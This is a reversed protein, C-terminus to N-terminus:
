PVIDRVPYSLRYGATAEDMLHRYGEEWRRRRDGTHLRALLRFTKPSYPHLELARFACRRAAEPDGLRALVDALVLWDKYRTKTHVGATALSARGREAARQLLAAREPGGRELAELYLRTMVASAHEQRLLTVALVGALLAALVAAGAAARWVPRPLRLGSPAAPTRAAALAALAFFALRHFPLELVYDTAMAATWCVLQGFLLLDGPRRSGRYARAMGLLLVALFSAWVALGIWGSEGLVQVHDSHARRVEVADDFARYRDHLRYVPYQTQWDGLGVGWPRHEVMNLTNLFYVGRDSEFYSAPDVLYSALSAAKQRAAPAALLVAGTLAAALGLAAALRRAPLGRPPWRLALLVVAVAGAAVAALSTRSQLTALYALEGVACAALLLRLPGAATAIWGCLLFLQGAIALAMPNKYGMISANAVEGYPDISTLWPLDVVLQLGGAATALAAVAILSGEVTSRVRHDRRAWATVVVALLFLPLYLTLEFFANEPVAAWAASIAFIGLVAGLLAIPPARLTAPLDLEDLRRRWAVLFFAVFCWTLVLVAARKPTGYSVFLLQGGGSGPLFASGSIVLTLALLGLSPRGRHGGPHHGGPSPTARQSTKAASTM